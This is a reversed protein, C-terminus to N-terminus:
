RALVAKKVVSSGGATLRCFYAGDPVMTGTHDTGNWVSSHSGAEQKQSVLTTITRGSVDFVDLSVLGSHPLTYHLDVESRSVSGNLELALPTATPAPKEAVPEGPTYNVLTVILLEGPSDTFVQDWSYWQIERVFSQGRWYDPTFCLTPSGTTDSKKVAVWFTGSNIQISDPLDLFTPGPQDSSTNKLATLEESEFLKTEGDDAFILFKFKDADWPWGPDPIEFFLAGVQKIWLPYSVQYGLADSFDHPKFQTAVLYTDPPNFKFITVNLSQDLPFYALMWEDLTNFQLNTESTLPTASLLTQPPAAAVVMAGGLVLMCIVLITKPM